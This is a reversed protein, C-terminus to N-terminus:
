PMNALAVFFGVVLGIVSLIVFYMMMARISRLLNRTDLLLIHTVAEVPVPQGDDPMPNLNLERNAPFTKNVTTLYDM